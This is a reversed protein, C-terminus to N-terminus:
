VAPDGLEREEEGGLRDEREEAEGIPELGLELVEALGVFAILKRLEDSVNRLQVRRGLRRAALQLRALVDITLADPALAGVDVVIPAPHTAPM